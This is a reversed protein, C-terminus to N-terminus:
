VVNGGRMEILLPRERDVLGFLLKYFANLDPCDRSEALVMYKCGAYTDAGMGRLVQMMEMTEKM